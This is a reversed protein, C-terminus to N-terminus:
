FPLGVAFHLAFDRGFRPHIIPWHGRGSLVTPNIAKMGGDLRLIFYNFNLRLGLGYSVAIQKYFTDLKFNGGPQDGYNRTNWVNGADIFAAGEFKWFLSTRYEMSLDLKLNGTQNIFDIKGDKGEYSGPGLQRVSWGRVSNAGGAFYRKEYPVITSNGYPVALGFATHFALAHRENILLSKAFDFDVRAYQSFPINFISYQGKDDPKMKTLHAVGDLLNGATEINFKIQYGNTKNLTGGPTNSHLSNYTFSYGAKMIFLNEYSYRLVAYRPDDGELYDKTFTESIWPMFVYNLSLIDVRNRWNPTNRRNWNVSWTGTLLRRHFEPRDQSNYLLSLESNGKVKRQREDRIFFPMSALRLTGEAGYEIYNQNGYGELHRIAEYAGRLKVSFSESGHFLNRNTYTLIAAGGLDGATNTGEIDFSASNPQNLNAFVDAHLTSDGETPQSYHVTAYNIAPLSNLGQYTFRTARDSYLSDPYLFIERRYIKDTLRAREGRIIQLGHYDTTDSPEASASAAEFPVEHVTVSSIRYQQYAVAPNAGAPARFTLRLDVDVSGHLTDADFTIFEPNVNYFGQQRLMEVIRSREGDLMTIDLPMGKHLSFGGAEDVAQRITDNDFIYAVDRVYYRRGPSLTYTLRSRRGAVTTDATVNAHLYGQSRLAGTLARRSYETLTSDYIVPAEGIRHMFRNFRRTSDTGSMCYIGLPVKAVNLWKSNPEQRIYSRVGSIPQQDNDTKIKVQTLLTQGEPVFRVPSCAALLCSIAIGILLHLSFKM